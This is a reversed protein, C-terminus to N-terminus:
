AELVCGANVLLISAILYIGLRARSRPGGPRSDQGSTSVKSDKDKESIRYSLPPESILDTIKMLKSDERRVKEKALSQQLALWQRKCQVLM